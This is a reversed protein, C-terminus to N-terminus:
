KASKVLSQYHSTEMEIVRKAEVERTSDIRIPTVQYSVSLKFSRESFSQWLRILEDFPLSYQVVRLEETTGELSGQLISGKVIANDYFIQMVKGLLTHDKSSDDTNPTVLYFLDLTLPVHKLKVPDTVQMKNNRLHPNEAVQYLFFSLKKNVFEDAVRQVVRNSAIIEAQTNVFIEYTSIEATDARGTWVNPSTPAVRIAGTVNYLPKILFWIAPLGAACMIFVTLLVIYWRRLVGKILASTGEGEHEPPSELNVVKQEVVQDHYKELDSM